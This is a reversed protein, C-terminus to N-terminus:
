RRRRRMLAAVGLGLAAMTAPEPVPTVVFELTYNTPSNFQNMWFSYQGSPLPPTFVQSGFVGQGMVPLIDTNLENQGFHAWGLLGAPDPADPDVTFTPGTTVGIFMLDQTDFSRVIISSLQKGADLNFTYFDLESDGTTALIENSGISLSLVTPNFRDGSFDGNIAENWVVAANAGQTVTLGVIALIPTSFKM